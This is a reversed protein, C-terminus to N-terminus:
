PRNFNVSVPMHDSGYSVKGQPVTATTFKSATPGVVYINDIPGAAAYRSAGSGVFSQGISTTLPTMKLGEILGGALLAHTDDFGDKAPPVGDERLNKGNKAKDNLGVNFDGAVIQTYDKAQLTQRKVHAAVAGVIYERQKANNFDEEGFQGRSSKLHLVTLQLKLTDIKVSLFGRQEFNRPANVASPPLLKTEKPDNQSTRNDPSTDFEIIDTFPFRSIVAVEFSGFERTDDQTFDSCAAFAPKGDAAKMGLEDRIAEVVKISCVEQLMLIDPKVDRAFAKLQSSRDRVSKESFMEGANWTVVKLPTQGLAPWASWCWSSVLIATLTTTWRRNM